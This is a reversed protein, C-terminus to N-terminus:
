RSKGPPAATKLVKAKSGDQLTLRYTYGEGRRAGQLPNSLRCGQWHLYGGCIGLGYIVASDVGGEQGRDASLSGDPNVHAHLDEAVRALAGLLDTRRYDSAELCYAIMEAANRPICSNTSSRFFDGNMEYAILSDALEKTHPIAMGANFYLRGIVKLTGGLRGALPASPPGWLGSKPDQHSLVQEVGKEMAPILDERGANVAGLIEMAMLGTHSGVGWGGMAWDPDDKTRQLFLTPEIQGTKSTTTHPYLPKANLMALLGVIYKENVPRKPDRPDVFRGTEPDQWAQWFRIMKQRADDNWGGVKDFLNYQRVLGLFQSSGQEDYPLRANPAAKALGWVEGNKCLHKEILFRCINDPIANVWAPTEQPSQVRVTNIREEGAPAPTQAKVQVAPGACMVLFVM